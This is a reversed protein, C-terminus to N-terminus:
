QLEVGNSKGENATGRMRLEILPPLLTEWLYARYQEFRM